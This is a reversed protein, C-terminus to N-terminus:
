VGLFSFKDQLYPAIMLEAQNRLCRSAADRGRPRLTLEGIDIQEMDAENGADSLAALALLSAAALFDAKCDEPTLGKRLRAAISSAASRCFLRLLAYQRQEVTGALILAQAFVQEELIM